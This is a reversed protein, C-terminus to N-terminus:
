HSDSASTPQKAPETSPPKDSSPPEGLYVNVAEYDGNLARNAEIVVKAGDTFDDPQIVKTGKLFRTKKSRKFTLVQDEGCDIVIKKKDIDRLKGRLEVPPVVEAPVGNNPGITRGRRVYQASLLGSLLFLALCFIRLRAFM